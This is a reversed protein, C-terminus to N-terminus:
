DGIQSGISFITSVYIFQIIKIAEFVKCKSKPFKFPIFQLELKSSHILHYDFIKNHIKKKKGMLARQVQLALPM